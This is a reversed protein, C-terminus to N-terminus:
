NIVTSYLSHDLCRQEEEGDLNLNRIFVRNFDPEVLSLLDLKVARKYIRISLCLSQVNLIELKLKIIKRLEFVDLSDNIINGTGANLDFACVGLM